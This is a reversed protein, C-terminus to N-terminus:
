KRLEAGFSQQLASVVKEHVESVEEDTLTHETHRYLLSIAVSKKGSEMKGGTYVDFVQVNQLLTGGNERIVDLLHGAPVAEDVVVAIDREMGPFRQLESYQLNTRANDYLPQLLLEAVYTDELDLKHQLEPHLQGMTGILTRGAGELLYISASRGPHYDQPANGEYVIRGTLGLYAFVSELAGKLDFFDVPEATINWQKATRTGSLLLGLVPLERPQRTLQEEDTFFVNGIEFLALDSQRRNTNYLAIDLLQPLLSTRLVSREESMPMALKVAQEGASFAPFLKSQEPQIFSYGMVEQYGGLALMRRLERRVSQRATLAGPTTVGEILTTPINDYGYLRAVEEILDVDYSIDGRRSPVQVEVLGQAADGCKFSLRGFLTKVELLSLETGLYNNLKELSLTLIKEPASDSGAQVIGEHVAGGAYRAILAAARNLAPIVAKPDVQKEFRLSAESRLGLQRSTKRVTGGEFRASELIINVTEATVETDLGGMVGALAVSKARDAIVLMQPELKREQGDLTTLVEGERAFRVGLVGGEVKDGDFAHLPQGYELMVYNTIDVINNIPRVGAAMLRNQIWLPSPAPKVGSIYRVAYHSCFEENEIQVSISDSAKGGAEVLEAAPDPLKLDRGLIASVEYAAGIMSLCDSRNPTLDFELIEDNLGLVKLIDQGVETNEPLVLIGEQLEKPLLKDNLGLEKASCIMGQSLVGRLKAKKIELGPLKAGVLAVPVKQGAAVNKAGCVIQLDEGQGADVICVNLKDADPHKEKSKVYGTVIGSLGKNRREVGDIEIGATTIKDALEEATVGELSIYDTLWGTSVKM